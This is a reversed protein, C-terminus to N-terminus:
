HRVLKNAVGHTDRTLAALTVPSLSFLMSSLDPLLTVLEQLPPLLPFTNPPPAPPLVSILNLHPATTHTSLNNQAYFCGVSVLLKLNPAICFPPPDWPCSLHHLWGAAAARDAATTNTSACVASLVARGQPCSGAGKPVVGSGCPFVHSLAARLGHLAWALSYGLHISGAARAVPVLAELHKSTQHSPDDADMVTHFLYVAHWEGL